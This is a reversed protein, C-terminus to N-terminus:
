LCSSTRAASPCLMHWPDFADDAARSALFYKVVAKAVAHRCNDVANAALPELPKHFAFAAAFLSLSPKIADALPKVAVALM